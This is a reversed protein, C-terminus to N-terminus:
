KSATSKVPSPVGFLCATVRSLRGLAAILLLIFGIVLFAKVVWRFPLGGPAESVENISVSYAVFPVSYILVLGVFPLLFLVTGILEVWAKKRMGFREHLVDIRVHADAEYCYSAGILFGLSYIHWQLEEFEIRGKGFVYRMVVNVTIVAILVVWVWSTLGGIRRIFQDIALSLRTRPFETHHMILDEVAVSPKNDAGLRDTM